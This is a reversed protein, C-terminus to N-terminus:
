ASLALPDDDCSREGPLRLKEDQVLRGTRKVYPNLLKKSVRHDRELSAQGDHHDGVPQGRKRHAVSDDGHPVSM